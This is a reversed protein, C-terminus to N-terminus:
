FLISLDDELEDSKDLEDSDEFCCGDDHGHKIESDSKPTREIPAGIFTAASKKEGGFGCGFKYTVGVYFKPFCSKLFTAFVNFLADSTSDFVDCYYEAGVRIALSNSLGNKIPIVDFDWCLAFYPPFAMGDMFKTPVLGVMLCGNFIDLGIYPNWYFTMGKGMDTYEWIERTKVGLRLGFRNNCGTFDLCVDQTTGFTFVGAFVADSVNLEVRRDENLEEKSFGLGAVLALSIVLVVKKFCNM